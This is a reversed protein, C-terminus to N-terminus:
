QLALVSLRLALDSEGWDRERLGSTFHGSFADLIRDFVEGAGSMRLVNAIAAHMDIFKPNLLSLRWERPANNKFALPEDRIKYVSEAEPEFWQVKFM